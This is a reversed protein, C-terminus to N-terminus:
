VEPEGTAPSDAQISQQADNTKINLGSHWEFGAVAQQWFAQFQDWDLPDPSLPKLVTLNGIREKRYLSEYTLFAFYEMANHHKPVPYRGDWIICQSLLGLLLRDKRKLFPIEAHEALMELDHTTLVSKSKSVAIAKYALELSMGCLMRYVRWTAVTMDFEDGLGLSWAINHKGNNQMCYWLAGAAGHLDCAKNFWYTPESARQTHEEEPAIM